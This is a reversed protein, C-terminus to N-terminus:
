RRELEDHLHTIRYVQEPLNASPFWGVKEAFVEVLVEFDVQLLM